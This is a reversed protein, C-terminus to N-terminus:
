AMTKQKVTKLTAPQLYHTDSKRSISILELNNSKDTPQVIHTSVVSQHEPFIIMHICSKDQEQGM